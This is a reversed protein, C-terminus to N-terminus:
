KKSSVKKKSVRKKRPRKLAKDAKELLEDVKKDTPVLNEDMLGHEIRWKYEPWEQRFDKGDNAILYIMKNLSLIAIPEAARELYDNIDKFILTGDEYFSCSFTYFQLRHEDAYSEATNDLINSKKRNIEMIKMRTQEIQIILDAAKEYDETEMLATGQKAVQEFLKKVEVVDSNVFIERDDIIKQAEASTLAGYRLAESYKTKYILDAENMERQNPIRVYYKKGELEFDLKNM